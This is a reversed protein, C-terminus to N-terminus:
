DILGEIDSASYTKCSWENIFKPSRREMEKSSWKSRIELCSQHIEQINPYYSRGPNIEGVLEPRFVFTGLPFAVEM